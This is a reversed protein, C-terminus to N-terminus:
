RSRVQLRLGAAFGVRGFLYVDKVRLLQIEDSMDM